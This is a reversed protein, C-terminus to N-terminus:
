ESGGPILCEVLADSLDIRIECYRVDQNQNRIVAGLQGRLEKVMELLVEVDQRAHAIFPGVSEPKSYKPFDCVSRYYEDDDKCRSVVIPPYSVGKGQYEWPGETAADVRKQIESLYKILPTM